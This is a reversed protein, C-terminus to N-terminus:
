EERRTSAEGSRLPLLRLRSRKPDITLVAGEELDSAVQTVARIVLAGIVDPSVDNARLQVVSPRSTKSKALMIGFDLDQTLIAYNHADAFAMIEADAADAAGLSSWHFAEIGAATMWGVWRPSLNRDILFKM